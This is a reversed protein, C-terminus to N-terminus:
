YLPRKEPCTSDFHLFRIIDTLVQDVFVNAEHKKKTLDMMLRGVFQRLPFYKHQMKELNQINNHSSKLFTQFATSRFHIQALLFDFFVFFCAQLSAMFKSQFIDLKKLTILLKTGFLYTM